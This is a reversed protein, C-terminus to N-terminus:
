VLLYIGTDTIKIRAGLLYIDEVGLERAKVVLNRLALLVKAVDSRLLATHEALIKLVFSDTLFVHGFGLAELEKYEMKKGLQTKLYVGSSTLSTAFEVFFSTTKAECVPQPAPFCEDPSRFCIRKETTAVVSSAFFQSLFSFSFSCSLRVSPGASPSFQLTLV